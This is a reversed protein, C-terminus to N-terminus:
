PCSCTNKKKGYNVKTHRVRSATVFEHSSSWFSGFGAIGEPLPATSSSINLHAVRLVSNTVTLNKVISCNSPTSAGRHRVRVCFSFVYLIIYLFFYFLPVDHKKERTRTYTKECIDALEDCLITYKYM